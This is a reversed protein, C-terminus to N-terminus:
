PTSELPKFLVVPVDAIEGIFAMVELGIFVQDPPLGVVRSLMRPGEELDVLAINYDPEPMGRAVSTSYVVGKGSAQVWELQQSGCGPCIIRPYFIHQQCDSCRQICFQGKKLFDAFVQDPGVDPFAEVSSPIM